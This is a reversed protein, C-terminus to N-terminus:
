IQAGISVRVRAQVAGSATEATSQAAIAAALADRASQASSGDLDSAAILAVHRAILEDFPALAAQRRQVASLEDAITTRLAVIREEIRGESAVEDGKITGLRRELDAVRVELSPGSFEGM